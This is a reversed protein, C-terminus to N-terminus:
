VVQIRKADHKRSYPCPRRSNDRYKNEKAVYKTLSKLKTIFSGWDVFKENNISAFAVVKPSPIKSADVKKILVEISISSYKFSKYTYAVTDDDNRKATVGFFYYAELLSKLGILDINNSQKM